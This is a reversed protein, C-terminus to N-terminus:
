TKLPTVYLYEKIKNTVEGEEERLRQVATMVSSQNNEEM